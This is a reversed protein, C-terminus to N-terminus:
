WKILNRTALALGVCFALLEMTRLIVAVTEFDSLDIDFTYDVVNPVNLEWQFHPAERNAVLASFFDYIDFPICFPFVDRLSYPVTLDSINDPVPAPDPTPQPIPNTPDVEPQPVPDPTIQPTSYSSGIYRIWPPIYPNNENDPNDDPNTEPVLHIISEAASESDPVDIPQRLEIFAKKGSTTNTIPIDDQFKNSVSIGGGDGIMIDQGYFIASSYTTNGLSPYNSFYYFRYTNDRYDFVIFLNNSDVSFTGSVWRSGNYTYYYLKRSSNSFLEVYLSSSLYLPMPSSTVLSYIDSGLIFSGDLNRYSLSVFASASPKIETVNDSFVKGSFLDKVFNLLWESIAIMKKGEFVFGKSVKEKWDPDPDTEQQEEVLELIKEEFESPQANGWFKYGLAEATAAIAGAIAPDSFVAEEGVAFSPLVMLCLIVCILILSIIRKM